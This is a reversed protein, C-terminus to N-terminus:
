MSSDSTSSCTGFVPQTRNGFSRYTRSQIMRRAVGYESHISDLRRSTASARHRSAEHRFCSPALPLEQSRRYHSCHTVCTISSASTCSWTSRGLTRPTWTTCVPSIATPRQAWHTGASISGGLSEPFSDIAVVDAAGRREAEFSFFGECCGIDLVRMGTMDDPLGYFPLKETMPDSWGPTTLGDGLDIKQFWYEEAEVQSRLWDHHNVVEENGAM